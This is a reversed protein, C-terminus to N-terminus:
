KMAILENHLLLAMATASFLNKYDSSISADFWVSGNSMVDIASVLEQNLRINYGSVRSRGSLFSSASSSNVEIMDRGFGISGTMQRNDNNNLHLSAVRGSGDAAKMECKLYSRNGPKVGVLIEEFEMRNSEIRCTVDWIGDEREQLQFEYRRGYTNLKSEPDGNKIEGTWWWNINSAIYPGFEVDQSYKFGDLGSVQYSVTKDGSEPIVMRASTCGNLFLVGALILPLMQSFQNYTVQASMITSIQFVGTKVRAGPGHFYNV